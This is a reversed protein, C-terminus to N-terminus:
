DKYATIEDFTPISQQAGKRSVAISSARNAFKLATLLDDGKQIRTALAGVFTDGAATTDVATTKYASATLFGDKSAAVTGREGLTIIVNPVGKELLKAAALRDTEPSDPYIGTYFRTETQNPIFYDSLEWIDNPLECAPAPNVITKMGKSKAVRLASMVTEIPIELQVILMDNETADSLARAALEEAVRGNAGSDIIIRNEGRCVTIVAIGSSVDNYRKVNDVNVGYNSLTQLLEDGFENGVAGVMVANGGCKSASVAQNAGKGGPNTMFGYGMVTMGADPFIDTGVILDMNISGVIYIKGM